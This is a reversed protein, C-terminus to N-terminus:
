YVDEVVVRADERVVIRGDDLGVLADELAHDVDVQLADKEAALVPDRLQDFRAAAGHDIDGGEDREHAAGDRLVRVCGALAAHERERARESNLVSALSNAGVRDAWAWYIPLADHLPFLTSRPPRRIM